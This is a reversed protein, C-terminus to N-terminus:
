PSPCRNLSMKGSDSLLEEIEVEARIDRPVEIPEQIRDHLHSTRVGIQRGISQVKLRMGSRHKVIDRILITANKQVLYPPELFQIVRKLVQCVFNSRIYARAICDNVLILRSRYEILRAAGLFRLDGRDKLLIEIQVVACLVDTSPEGSTWEWGISRIKARLYVILGMSM